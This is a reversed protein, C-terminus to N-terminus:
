LDNNNQEGHIDNMDLQYNEGFNNFNMNNMDDMNNFQNELHNMNMNLENNFLNVDLNQQNNMYNNMNNINMNQFNNMMNNNNENMNMNNNSALNNNLNNMNNINKKQGTSVNYGLKEIYSIVHKSYSDKKKLIDSTIIKKVIKEKQEEEAYEIMKQIVYNGFKDKVLTTLSDHGNEENSEIIENILDEKQEKTGFHLCREIVNSAFKHISMDLIRGKLAEYIEKCREGHRTQLLHQIVYNGYQDQCLNVVNKYIEELLKQSEEESCFEFIKQIVRCGYQQISFYYVKKPWIVNILKEREDDNLKEILKQIVHNGNQDEICKSYNQSLENSIVSIEDNPIISILKQVVRCGYMHLTLDLLKGKLEPLILKYHEQDIIKQITYNGFIEKSLPYIDKKLKEFIRDKDEPSCEEYKQQILRSGSHEKSLADAKNIIEDLTMDEQNEKKNQPTNMNKNNNPNQKQVFNGGKKKNNKKKGKKGLGQKRNNNQNNLNQMLNNNYNYQNIQNFQNFPENGNNNYLINGYNNNIGLLANMDMNLNMNRMNGSKNNGQQGFYNGLLNNNGFNNMLMQNLYNSNDGMNQNGLNMNMMPNNMNMYSNMNGFISDNGQQQNYNKKHNKGGKPKNQGENGMLNGFNDFPNFNGHSIQNFAANLNPQNDESDDGGWNKMQGLNSKQNQNFINDNNQGLDLNGMLKILDQTNPQGFDPMNKDKDQSPQNYLMFNPDFNPNFDDSNSQNPIFQNIGKLQEMQSLQNFQQNLNSSM